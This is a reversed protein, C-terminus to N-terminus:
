SRHIAERLAIVAERLSPQQSAPTAASELAAGLGNGLSQRVGSGIEAWGATAADMMPEVAGLYRVPQQFAPRTTLEDDYAATTTLYQLYGAGFALGTSRPKIMVSELTEATSNKMKTKM